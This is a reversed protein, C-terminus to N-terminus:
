ESSEDSSLRARRGARLMRATLARVVELDSRRPVLLLRMDGGALRRFALAHLVAMLVAAGLTAAANGVLGWIPILVVSLVLNVLGAVIMIGSTLGPKGRALFYSQLCGSFGVLVASPALVLLPPVAPVFSRGYLVPVVPISALGVVVVGALMVWLLLRASRRVLESGDTAVRASAEGQLLHALARPLSLLAEYAASAVVYYGVSAPGLFYALLYHDARKFAQAAVSGGHQRVGFGIFGRLQRWDPGGPVAGSRSLVAAAAWCGLVAQSLTAAALAGAVGLDLGLVAVVTLGFGIAAGVATITQYRRADGAALLLASSFTTLMVFPFSAFGAWLALTGVAVDQLIVHRFWPEAVALVAFALVSLGAVVAAYMRLLAPASLRGGRLYFIAASPLGLQGLAALLAATTLVLAVAGRGSPGLSRALVVGSALQFLMALWNAAFVRAAKAGLAVGPDPNPAERAAASAADVALAARTVETM